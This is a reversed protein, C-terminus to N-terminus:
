TNHSCAQRESYLIGNHKKESTTHKKGETTESELYRIICFVFYIFLKLYYFLREKNLCHFKFKARSVEIVRDQSILAAPTM